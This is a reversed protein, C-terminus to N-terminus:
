TTVRVEDANRPVTFTGNDHSHGAEIERARKEARQAATEFGRPREVDPAAHDWQALGELHKGSLFKKLSAPFERGERSGRYEDIRRLLLGLVDPEDPHQEALLLLAAYLGRTDNVSAPRWGSPKARNWAAEVRRADDTTTSGVWARKQQQQQQQQESKPAIIRPGSAAAHAPDNRVDKRTKDQRFDQRARESIVNLHPNSRESIDDLHHNTGAKIADPHTPSQDESPPSTRTSRRREREAVAGRAKESREHGLTGQKKRLRPLVLGERVIKGWGVATLAAVFGPMAVLGDVMAETAHEILADDNGKPRGVADAYAWLAVLCGVVHSPAIKLDAAMRLVQPKTPLAADIKLWGM